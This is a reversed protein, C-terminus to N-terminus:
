NKRRGSLLVYIGMYILTVGFGLVLGTLFETTM